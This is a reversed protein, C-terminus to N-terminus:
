RPPRPDSLEDAGRALEVHQGESSVTFRWQDATPSGAEVWWRYADEVENWLRRPGLQRVEYREAGPRYEISAWSRSEPDLFWVTYEGSGNKALSYTWRCRPVRLGIAVPADDNAVRAPHIDTYSVDANEKEYVSGSLRVLPTRQDRLSMFSVTNDVLRGTATGDDGVRLTLLGASHYTTGWPTIVLGGPRTQAVWEYPVQPAAVTALVRDYPARPPYGRAGDGTVVTVDYGVGTLAQRARAALQPDVEITTVNHVGLHASLLAANYGTGTGIECVTMGTQVELAALMLAVVDPRSASSTVVRGTLNPGVPYGDDVQIIVYDPGYALGLWGEPDDGRRLPVLWNGEDRWVTEPIFAHRPVSLFAERWEPVLKRSATLDDVLRTRLRTPDTM